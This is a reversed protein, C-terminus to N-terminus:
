KDCRYIGYLSISQVFFLLRDMWILLASSVKFPQALGTTFNQLVKWVRKMMMKTTTTTTTTEENDDHQNHDDDYLSFHATKDSVKRQSLKPTDLKEFPIIDNRIRRGSWRNISLM